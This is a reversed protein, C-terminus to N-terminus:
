KYFKFQLSIFFTRGYSIPIGGLESNVSGGARSIRSVTTVNFLNKVGAVAQLHHRFFTRSLSANMTHYPEQLGEKIEQDEPDTYFYPLSGSYKYDVALKIRSSQETIKTGAYWDHTLNFKVSNNTESYSNYRGTLGYGARLLLMPRYKYSATLDIGTSEFRKINEYTYATSNEEQVLTILNRINNYYQSSSLILSNNGSVPKFELTSNVNGSSEAELDSNGYIEHNSDVFIYYLEKINPARFGTAVSARWTLPRLVQWKMNLSYVLPARYSTNYAYRIGPQFELTRFPIYKLNLFLAYDGISQRGGEIRRGQMEEINIDTGFQLSLKGPLFSHDYIARLMKQSVEQSSERDEWTKELTRLDKFYSQSARDFDNYSAVLNLHNKEMWRGKLGVSVDYRRTYYYTDIAKYQEYIDGKFLLKDNYFGFKTNVQWNDNRWNHSANIRYLNKPKWNMSRTNENFDIGPFYEYGGDASLTHKKLKRSFGLNGSLRGVNEAYLKARTELKHHENKKTILNITGALANNGYVVSMPGEIVEVQAINDLNVQSLDINGDLRGIVPVGDIMIKVNQGSLGLMEVQTGLVLDTSMRINAETLLLEGLNLAGSYRIKEESILKVKYISSDVPTPKFEGSVVVEKLEEYKEELHIIKYKVMGDEVRFAVEKPYYGVSSVMLIGGSGEMELVLEFKGNEDAVTGSGSEKHVVNAFSVPSNDLNIVQGRVSVPDAQM